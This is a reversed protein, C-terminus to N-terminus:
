PAPPRADEDLDLVAAVLNDSAIVDGESALRPQALGRDFAQRAVQEIIGPKGRWWL